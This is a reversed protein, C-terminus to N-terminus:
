RWTPVLSAKVVPLAAVAPAAGMPAEGGSRKWCRIFRWWRLGGRGPSGGRRVIWRRPAAPSGGRLLRRRWQSGGFLWETVPAVGMPAECWPAAEVVPSSWWRFCRGVSSGGRRVIWRRRLRRLAAGTPAAEEVQHGM